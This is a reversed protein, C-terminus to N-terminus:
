AKIKEYFLSVYVEYHLCQRLEYTLLGFLYCIINQNSKNLDSESIIGKFKVALTDLNVKSKCKAVWLLQFCHVVFTM